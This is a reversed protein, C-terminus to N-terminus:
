PRRSRQQTGRSRRTRRMVAGFMEETGDHSLLTVSEVINKMEGGYAGANMFVAGGLSGPDWLCVGHGYTGGPTSRQVRCVAACRM